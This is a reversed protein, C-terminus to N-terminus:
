PWIQKRTDMAQATQEFLKQADITVEIGQKHLFQFAEDMERASLPTDVFLDEIELASVVSQDSELTDLYEKLVKETTKEM